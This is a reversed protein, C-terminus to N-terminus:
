EAYACPTLDSFTLTGDDIVDLKEPWRAVIDLIGQPPDLDFKLARKYRESVRMGARPGFKRALQFQRVREVDEATINRATTWRRAREAERRGRRKRLIDKILECRSRLREVSQAVFARANDVRNRGSQFDDDRRITKLSKEMVRLRKRLASDDEEHLYPNGDDASEIMHMMATSRNPPLPRVSTAAGHVIKGSRVALGTTVAVDDARM